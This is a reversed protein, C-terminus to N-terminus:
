WWRRSELSRFAFALSFVIVSGLFVVDRLDIVGRAMSSLHYDFTIWQVASALSTPLLPLAWGLVLNLGLVLWGVFLAVLEHTSWSSALLGIALMAAGTLFIGLYGTIVPGWDLAGLSAVCIPYPITLAVIVTFLGLVGLFKGVIVDMDRVPMTLLIEITGTRKEEALLGMTLAPATFILITLLHSFLDRVTVRGQLFFTQWFFFGVFLLVVTGVIYALPSNFYSAFQRRAIALTNRM